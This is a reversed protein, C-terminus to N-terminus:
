PRKARVMDGLTQLVDDLDGMAREITETMPIHTEGRDDGQNALWACCIMNRAPSLRDRIAELDRPPATTSATSAANM